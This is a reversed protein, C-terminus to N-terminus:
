VMGDIFSLVDDIRRWENSGGPLDDLLPEIVSRYKHLNGKGEDFIVQPQGEIHRVHLWLKGGYDEGFHKRGLYYEDWQTQVVEKMKGDVEVQVPVFETLRVFIPSVSDVMDTDWYEKELTSISIFALTNGSEDGVVFRTENKRLRSNTDGDPRKRGFRVSHLVNGRHLQEIGM